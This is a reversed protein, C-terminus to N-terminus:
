WNPACTEDEPDNCNLWELAVEAFDELGVTCDGSLDSALYGWDGCFQAPLTTVLEYLQFQGADQYKGGFTNEALMGFDVGGNYRTSAVIDLGVTHGLQLDTVDTAGSGGKGAYNDFQKIGLEYTITNGNVAVDSEFQADGGLAVGDAWTAWHDITAGPGVRDHQAVEYAATYPGGAADGQSYIEIRDSADWVGYTDSFCPDNDEIVVAVYIKEDDGDWLASFRAGTVDFPFGSGSYEDDLLIWETDSPWDALDGDVAIGGGPVPAIKYTPIGGPVQVCGDGGPVTCKLWEDAAFSLDPMAVHCDEDLDADLLLGLQRVEDCTSISDLGLVDFHGTFIQYNVGAGGILDGFNGWFNNQIEILVYQRNVDTVDATRKTGPTNVSPLFDGSYIEQSYNDKVAPDFGPDDESFSNADSVAPAIRISVGKINWNTAQGPDNFNYIEQIDKVTRLNMVLDLTLDGTEGGTYAYVNRSCPDPYIPGTDGTIAIIQIADAPALDTEIRIDNIWCRDDNDPNGAWWNDCSFMLYRATRPIPNPIWTTLQWGQEVGANLSSNITAFRITDSAQVTYFSPDTPEFCPDSEDATFFEIRRVHYGSNAASNKVYVTDITEVSGLDLAFEIRDNDSHDWVLYKGGNPDGQFDSIADSGVGRIEGATVPKGWPPPPPNEEGVITIDQIYARDSADGWWNECLVYLYRATRQEATAGEIAPEWKQDFNAGDDSFGPRAFRGTTGAGLIDQTYLTRDNPDFGPDGDTPATFM